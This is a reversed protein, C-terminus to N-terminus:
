SISPSGGARHESPDRAIAVLPLLAIAAAVLRSPEVVPRLANGVLVLPLVVLIAIGRQRHGTGGADDRTLTDLVAGGGRRGRLARAVVALAFCGNAVLFFLSLWVVGPAALIRWIWRSEM